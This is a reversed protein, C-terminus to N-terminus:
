RNMPTMRPTVIKISSGANKMAPATSQARTFGPREQEITRSANPLKGLRQLKSVREVTSLELKLLFFCSSRWFQRLSAPLGHLRHRQSSRNTVESSKCPQFLPCWANRSMMVFFWGARTISTPTQFPPEVSKRAPRKRSVPVFPVTIAVSVNRALGSCQSRRPLSPFRM